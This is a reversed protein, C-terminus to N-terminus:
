TLSTKSRLWQEEVVDIAERGRTVLRKIGDIVVRRRSYFQFEAGRRLREDLVEVLMEGGLGRDVGEM